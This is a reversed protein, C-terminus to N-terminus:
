RRRAPRAADFDVIEYPIARMVAGVSDRQLFVNVRFRGKGPLSHSTDLELDNEFKERQKQTLIAYVM